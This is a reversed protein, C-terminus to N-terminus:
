ICWTSRRCCVFIAISDSSSIWLLLSVQLFSTIIFVHFVHCEWADGATSLIQGQLFIEWMWTKKKKKKKGVGDICSFSSSCIPPLNSIAFWKSWDNHNTSWFRPAATLDYKNFKRQCTNPKATCKVLTLL